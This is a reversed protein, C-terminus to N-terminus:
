RRTLSVVDFVHPASVKYPAEHGSLEVFRVDVLTLNIIARTLAVHGLNHEQDKEWDEKREWRDDRRDPNLDGPNLLVVRERGLGKASHVTSLFVFEGANDNPTRRTDLRPCLRLIENQLDFITAIGEGKDKLVREVTAKLLRDHDKSLTASLRHARKLDKLLVNAVSTKQHLRKPLMDLRHDKPYANKWCALLQNVADILAQGAPNKVEDVALYQPIGSVILEWSLAELVAKYRALVLTGSSFLSAYRRLDCGSIFDLTEALYELEGFQANPKAKLNMDTKSSTARDYAHALAVHSVPCRQTVPLSLDVMDPFIAPLYALSNPLSGTYAYISQKDDGVALLRGGPLLNRTVLTIRLVSLDQAEDVAITQFKPVSINKAITPIYVLDQRHPPSPVTILPARFSFTAHTEAVWM